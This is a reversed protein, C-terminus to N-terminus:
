VALKCCLQFTPWHIDKHYETNFAWVLRQQDITISVKQRSSIFSNCLLIMSFHSLVVHITVSNEFQVQFCLTSLSMFTIHLQNKKCILLHFYCYWTSLIFHKDCYSSWATSSFFICIPALSDCPVCSTFKNFGVAHCYLTGSFHNLRAKSYVSQGISSYLFCALVHQQSLQGLHVLQCTAM